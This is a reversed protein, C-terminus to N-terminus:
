RDDPQLVWGTRLQTPVGTDSAGATAARVGPAIASAGAFALARRRARALAVAPPPAAKPTTQAAEDVRADDRVPEPRTRITM